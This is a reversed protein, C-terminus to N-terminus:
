LWPIVFPRALDVNNVERAAKDPVEKRRGCIYVHAGRAAFRGGNGQWDLARGAILIRKFCPSTSCPTKSEKLIRQHITNTSLRGGSRKWVDITILGIPIEPKSIEDV